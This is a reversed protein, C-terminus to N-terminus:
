REIELLKHDLYAMANQYKITLAIFGNSIIM